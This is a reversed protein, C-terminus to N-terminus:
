ATSFGSARDSFKSSQLIKGTPMWLCSPLKGPHMVSEITNHATGGTLSKKHLHSVPHQYFISLSSHQMCARLCYFLSFRVFLQGNFIAIKRYSFLHWKGTLHSVTDCSDEHYVNNWMAGATIWFVHCHVHDLPTCLTGMLHHSQM